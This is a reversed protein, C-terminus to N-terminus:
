SPRTPSQPYPLKPDSAPAVTANILSDLPEGADALPNKFTPLPKPELTPGATSSGNTSLDRFITTHRKILTKRPQAADEILFSTPQAVIQSNVPEAPLAKNLIASLPRQLPRLPPKPKTANADIQQVTTKVVGLCAEKPVPRLPKVDVLSAKIKVNLDDQVATQRTNSIDAFAARRPQNAFANNKLPLLTSNLASM